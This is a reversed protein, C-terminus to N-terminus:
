QSIKIEILALQIDKDETEIEVNMATTYPPIHIIFRSEKWHLGSFDKYNPKETIYYNNEYWPEDYASVKLTANDFSNYTIASETLSTGSFVPPFYRSYVKVELDRAYESSAYTLTKKLVNGKSITVIKNAGHPVVTDPSAMTILPSTSSWLDSDTNFVTKNLVTDDDKVKTANKKHYYEKYEEGVWEVILDSINFNGANNLLITIKDYDMCEKLKTKDLSIVGGSITVTKYVSKPKTTQNEFQDTFETTGKLYAISADGSGSVKTLTGAQQSYQTYPSTIITNGRVAVVTFQTAGKADSTYKDGIAVNPMNSCEFGTYMTGDLTVGNYPTKYYAQISGADTSVKFTASEISKLTTPLVVEILCYDSFAVSEKNMLKLYESTVQEFSTPGFTSAKDYNIEQASTLAYHGVSIEQFVKVRENIFDFNLDNISSATNRPRFLKIGQRPRPLDKIFNIMYDSFLYQGRTGPHINYWFGSYQTKNMKASPTHIDWFPINHKDAVAKYIRLIPNYGTYGAPPKWGFETCLIPLSGNTKILQIMSELTDIMYESDAKILRYDNTTLIILAYKTNYDNFGLTTHFLKKNTRLHNVYDLTYKGSESYNEFNFDSLESLLNIYAKGKLAYHVASLSNGLITIKDSNAITISNGSITGGGISNLTEQLGSIESISHNTPHTYINTEVGDLKINGNINSEAISSVNSNGSKKKWM